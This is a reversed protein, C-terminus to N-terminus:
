KKKSKNGKEEEKPEIVEEVKEPEKEEKPEVVIEKKPTDVKEASVGKKDEVITYGLRKYFAEYSGKTVELKSTNAGEKNIITIM